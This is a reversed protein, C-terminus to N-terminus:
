FHFNELGQQYNKLAGFSFPQTKIFYFSSTFKFKIFYYNCCKWPLLIIIIDHADFAYSGFGGDGFLLRFKQIMIHNSHILISVRM